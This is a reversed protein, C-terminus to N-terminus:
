LLSVEVAWGYGHRLFGERSVACRKPGAGIKVGPTKAIFEGQFLQLMEQRQGAALFAQGFVPKRLQVERKGDSPEGVWQRLCFLGDPWQDHFRSLRLAKEALQCLAHIPLFQKGEQLTQTGILFPM